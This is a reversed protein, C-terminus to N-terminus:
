SFSKGIYQSNDSKVQLDLLTVFHPIVFTEPLTEMYEMHERNFEAITQTPLSSAGIGRCVIMRGHWSERTFPVEIDYTIINKCEFLEKSWDPVTPAFRKYGGGTWEPNYKRVLQESANSIKNEFPLWAMFLILFRGHPKLMRKIEPLIVKKDFYFFCQCATIVDFECSPLNSSEAPSTFFNIQMNKENALRKAQAIQNESIDTGTWRAGFQYMNRPIVGTGTGLDLVSQGRICLGLDVIKNYFEAPYIDRYKAYEESTNGWDFAKGNDIDQNIIM